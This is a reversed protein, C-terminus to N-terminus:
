RCDYWVKSTCNAWWQVSICSTPRTDIGIAPPSQSTRITNTPSHLQTTFALRNSCWQRNGDWNLMLFYLSHIQLPKAYHSIGVSPSACCWISIANITNNIQKCSVIWTLQSPNQFRWRKEHNIGRCLLPSSDTSCAFPVELVSCERTDRGALEGVNFNIM